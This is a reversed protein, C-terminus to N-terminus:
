SKRTKTEAPRTSPLQKELEMARKIMKEQDVPQTSAPKLEYDLRQKDKLPIPLVTAVIDLPVWNWWPAVVVGTTQLGEYGEKRLTVDYTGYYTFPRTIPTRGFEEDNLYVLAGSPKSTVTLQQEVCGNVIVFCLIPSALITTTRLRKVIPPTYPSYQSLHLPQAHSPYTWRFHHAILSWFRAIERHPHWLDAYECVQTKWRTSAVPRPTGRGTAGLGISSQSSYNVEKLRKRKM